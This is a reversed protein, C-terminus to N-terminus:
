NKFAMNEETNQPVKTLHVCIKLSSVKKSTIDRKNQSNEKM